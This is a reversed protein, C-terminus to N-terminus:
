LPKNVWFNVQGACYSPPSFAKAVAQYSVINEFAICKPANSTGIVGLYLGKIVQQYIELLASDHIELPGSKNAQLLANIKPVSSALNVYRSQLEAYVRQILLPDPVVKGSLTHALTVFSPDLASADIGNSPAVNAQAYRTLAIGSFSVTAIVAGGCSLLRRRTYDIM